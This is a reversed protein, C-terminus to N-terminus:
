RSGGSRSRGNDRNRLVTSNRIVGFFINGGGGTTQNTVRNISESQRSTDETLAPIISFEESKNVIRLYSALSETYLYIENNVNTDGNFYVTEEPIAEDAIAEETITEDAITEEPNIDISEFIDTNIDEGSTITINGGSTITIDGSSVSGRSLGSSQSHSYDADSYLRINGGNGSGNERQTSDTEQPNAPIIGAKKPINPRIRTANNERTSDNDHTEFASNIELDGNIELADNSSNRNANNSGQDTWRNEEDAPFTFTARHEGMIEPSASIRVSALSDLTEPLISQVSELALLLLSKQLADAVVNANEDAELLLIVRGCANGSLDSVCIAPVGGVEGAIIQSFLGQQYYDQFISAVSYCRDLPTENTEPYFEKTWEILTFEGLPNNVVTKPVEGNSGCFFSIEIDDTIFENLTAGRAPAFNSQSASPLVLEETLEANTLDSLLSELTPAKSTGQKSQQPPQIPQAQAQLTAISILLLPASFISSLCVKLFPQYM